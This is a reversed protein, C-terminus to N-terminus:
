DEKVTIPNSYTSLADTAIAQISTGNILPANAIERLAELLVEVSPSESDPPIYSKDIDGEMGYSKTMNAKKVYIVSGDKFENDTSNMLVYQNDRNYIEGIPMLESSTQEALQQRKGEAYCARGYSVIVSKVHEPLVALTGVLELVPKNDM